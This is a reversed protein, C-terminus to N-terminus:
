VIDVPNLRCHEFDFGIVVHNIRKAGRLLQQALAQVLPRRRQQLATAMKRLLAEQGKLLKLWRSLRPVDAPPRPVPAIRQRTRGLAVATQAFRSSALGFEGKAILRNVGRLLGRNADTEEKCIPDVQAAYDSRTTAESAAGSAIGASFCGLSCALALVCGKAPVRIQSGEV